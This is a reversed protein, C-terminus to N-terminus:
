AQRLQEQLNHVKWAERLKSLYQIDGSEKLWGM